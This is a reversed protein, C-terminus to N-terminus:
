ATGIFANIASLYQCGKDNRERLNVAMDKLVRQIRVESETDCSCAPGAHIRSRIGRANIAELKVKVDALVGLRERLACWAAFENVALDILREAKPLEDTRAKISGDTIASLQDVNLVTKGPMAAVNPYVNRPVSLDLFWQPRHEGANTTTIVPEPANTAVLVVDSKPLLQGLEHFHASAVGLEAALAEAKADTRNVLTINGAGLREVLHKGTNRGIKGTGVLLIQKDAINDLQELYRVAAFAVSVTGAGIATHTRVAKSAKMAENALRECLVGVGGHEKATRVAQKVQSVIEYDGLLQSDVGAAVRFFHRVAHAGIHQYSIAALEQATTGTIACLAERLQAPHDAVAYLETRNCTSVVFLEEIGFRRRDNLLSHYREADISFRGRVLPDAKKYSVGLMFFRDLQVPLVPVARM